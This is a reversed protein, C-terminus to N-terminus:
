LGGAARTPSSRVMRLMDTATPDVLGRFYNHAELIEQKQDYTLSGEVIMWPTALVFLFLITSPSFDVM